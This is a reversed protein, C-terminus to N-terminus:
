GEPSAGAALFILLGLGIVWWYKRFFGAEQTAPQGTLAEVLAKPVVVGPAALARRSKVFTDDFLNSLPDPKCKLTLAIPLGDRLEVDFYDRAGKSSAEALRSAAVSTQLSGMKERRLRVIYLGDADALKQLTERASEANELGKPLTAEDDIVEIKGRPSCEEKQGPFLFCHELDFEEASAVCALLFLRWM